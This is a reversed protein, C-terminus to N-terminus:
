GVKVRPIVFVDFWHRLGAREYVRELSPWSESLVGLRLGRNHLRELVPRVDDFPVQEDDVKRRAAEALVEPESEVGLHHLVREYSGAFLSYQETETQIPTGHVEDLYGMANALAEELADPDSKEVGLAMQISPPCFWRAHKRVDPPDHLPHMLTDGSDFLVAQIVDDNKDADCNSKRADENRKNTVVIQGRM